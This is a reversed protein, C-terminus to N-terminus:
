SAAAEQKAFHSAIEAGTAIWLDSCSEAYQLFERLLRLRMPRGSCQPHLVTTVMAGWDRTEDLEDKWISLVHERPFVARPSFRNTLDLLWDDYSATVPLEITAPAGNALRHPQVIPHGAPEIVGTQRTISGYQEPGIPASTSCRTRARAACM